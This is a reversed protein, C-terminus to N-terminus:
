WPGRLVLGAKVDKKSPLAAQGMPTACAASQSSEFVNFSLISGDGLLDDHHKRM